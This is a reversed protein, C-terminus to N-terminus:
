RATPSVCRAQTDEGKAERWEKRKRKQTTATHQLARSKEEISCRGGGLGSGMRARTRGKKAGAGWRIPAAAGLSPSINSGEGKKQLNEKYKGREEGEIERKRKLSNYVYQVTVNWTLKNIKLRIKM